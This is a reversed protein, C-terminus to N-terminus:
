VVGEKEWLGYQSGERCVSALECLFTEGGFVVVMLGFLEQLLSGRPRIVPEVDGKENVGEVGKVEPEFGGTAIWNIILSLRAAGYIDILGFPIYPHTPALLAPVVTHLRTLHNM